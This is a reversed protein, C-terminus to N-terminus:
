NNKILDKKQKFIYVSLIYGISCGVIVDSIYHANVMVRSFAIISAFLYVIAKISKSKIPFLLMVITVFTFIISSHGSPFSSNSYGFSNMISFGYDGTEFFAKLRYRGFLFKLAQIFLSSYLIVQLQIYFRIWLDHISKNEFLCNYGYVIFSITILSIPEALKTIFSFVQRTNESTISNILLAFPLDIFLILIIIAISYNLINIKNIM